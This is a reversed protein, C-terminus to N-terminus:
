NESEAPVGPQVMVMSAINGTNTVQVNYMNELCAASDIISAQDAPACNALEAATKGFIALGLVDNVKALHYESDAQDTKFRGDFYYHEMYDTSAHNGDVQHVYVSDGAANQGSVIVAKMCQKCGNFTVTGKNSPTYRDMQLITTAQLMGGEAMGLAERRIDVMRRVDGMPIASVDVLHYASPNRALQELKSSLPNGSITVVSTGWASAEKSKTATNLWVKAGYIEIRQGVKVNKGDFFMVKIKAKRSAITLKTGTANRMMKQEVEIVVGAFNVLQGESSEVIDGIEVCLQTPGTMGDASEALDEDGKTYPKIPCNRVCSYVHTQGALTVQKEAPHPKQELRVSYCQNLMFNAAYKTADEGYFTCIPLQTELNFLIVHKRAVQSAKAIAYGIDGVVLVKVHYLKATMSVVGSGDSSNFSVTGAAGVAPRWAKVPSSGASGARAGGVVGTSSAPTVVTTDERRPSKAPVSAKVSPKVPTSPASSIARVTVPISDASRNSKRGAAKKPPAEEEDEAEEEGEEEKEEEEVESTPTERMAKVRAKAAAIADAPKITAISSGRTSRKTPTPEEHKEDDSSTYPDPHTGTDEQEQEVDDEDDSGLAAEDDIFKSRPRTKAAERHTLEEEDSDSLVIPEDSGEAQDGHDGTMDVDDDEDAELANDANKAERDVDVDAAQARQESRATARKTKKSRAVQRSDDDSDHSTTHDALPAEVAVRSRKKALTDCVAACISRTFTWSEM